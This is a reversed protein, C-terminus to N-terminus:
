INAEEKKLMNKMAVPIEVHEKLRRYKDFLEMSYPLVESLLEYIAQAYQQIEWQAHGDIRVAMLNMMNHLDQRWLWKTYVSTPLRVRAIENPIGMQIDKEYEAYAKDCTDKLSECFHQAYDNEVGPVRGQKNTAAKVGVDQPNPIYFEKPLQIYRASIENITATRHRVFQRAVFIPMKMELWVTVMEFPTTHKHKLLYNALKLDAERSRKAQDAADFSFRASNAPDIDDADFLQDIRRVPGAVNRLAIYGHDLVDRRIM